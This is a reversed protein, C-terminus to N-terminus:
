RATGALRRFANSFSRCSRLMAPLIWPEMSFRSRSEFIAPGKWPSRETLAQCREEREEPLARHAHSPFRHLGTVPWMIIGGALLAEARSVALFGLFGGYSYGVLILPRSGDGSRGTRPVPWSMGSMPRETSEATPTGISPATGASGRYAACIFEYGEGLNVPTNGPHHSPQHSYTNRDQRLRAPHSPGPCGKRPPGSGIAPRSTAGQGARRAPATPDRRTDTLLLWPERHGPAHLVVLTGPLPDRGFATGEGLWLTGPGGGLARAPVRDGNTPRFTIHLPYCLVPHWGLDVIQRWLDRSGLGQDCLVHM